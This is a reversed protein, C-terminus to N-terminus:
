RLGSLGSLGGAPDARGIENVARVTIIVLM